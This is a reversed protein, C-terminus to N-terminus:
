WDRRKRDRYRPYSTSGPLRRRAPRRPASRDREYAPGGCPGSRRHPLDRGPRCGKRRLRNWPRLSRDSFASTPALPDIMVGKSDAAKEVFGIGLAYHDIRFLVPPRLRLGHHAEVIGILERALLMEQVLRVADPLIDFCIDHIANM